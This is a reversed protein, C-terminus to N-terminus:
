FLLSKRSCKILMNHESMGIIIPATTAPFAQYQVIQKCYDDFLTGRYLCQQVNNLFLFIGPVTITSSSGWKFMWIVSIKM